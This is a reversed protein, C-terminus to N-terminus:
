IIYELYASRSSIHQWEEVDFVLKIITGAFVSNVPQDSYYNLVNQIVPNHGVIMLNEIEKKEHTILKTMEKLSCEYLEDMINVVEVTLKSQIISATQKARVASSVLMKDIFIQKQFLQDVSSTFRVVGGTTLKREFDTTTGPKEAEAHRILFLNRNM